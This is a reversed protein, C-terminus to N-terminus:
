SDYHLRISWEILQQTGPQQRGRGGGREGSAPTRQAGSSGRRARPEGSGMRPLTAGRARGGGLAAPGPPDPPALCSDPSLSSCRKLSTQTSLAIVEYGATPPYGHHGAAAPKHKRPRRHTAAASVNGDTSLPSGPRRGAPLLNARHLDVPDCTESGVGTEEPARQLGGAPGPGEPAGLSPHLHELDTFLAGESTSGMSCRASSLNDESASGWSHVGAPGAGGAGPAPGAGGAGPALGAGGARQRPHHHPHHHHPLHGGSPEFDAEEEEEEEEEDADEEDPDEEAAQAELLLHPPPPSPSSAYAHTPMLTQPPPPLSPPPIVSSLNVQAWRECILLRSEAPLASAGKSGRSQELLHYERAGLPPRPAPRRQLAAQLLQTTAYPVPEYTPAGGGGPGLYCLGAGDFADGPTVAGLNLDSYIANDSGLMDEQGGGGRPDLHSGYNAICDAPRSYTIMGGDGTGDANNCCNVSREKHSAGGNPWNDALWLQNLPDGMNIHGPRGASCVTEGRQYAVKRIGTYSSSLGSRKKRHRYLWVSFVMLFAWCTAGIGAIFAPQRLVHSLESLANREEFSHMVQGTSDLKFFKVDSRVGPGAGNSAAVEVSYRVGPELRPILVSFTSGDVSQNVHYRSENGLCWIKYEEVVGSRDEEPPPRWAVLITTGNADSKTVTVGQPARNPAEDLTRATRVESDPGQFEDFFPRVKFEYSVGGRLQPVVVEAEGPTRVDLFSWAGGPHGPEPSPRYLVRYGQLYATEKEVTWQLRLTSSSLTTPPNLRVVMDGLERQVQQPDVGHLSPPAEHTRVADSIPSPDSLGHANASRVLFLYVTGPRLDTLVWSPTRVHEALTVWSSGLTHSFAEVLFSAPTSGANHNTRWSLSASSHSINTVEPKSPAAPLLLPNLPPGAAVEAGFEEVELYATWTAEGSPGSAVCTYSGSDGVKTHTLQLSGSDVLSTSAELPSVPVGNRRWHITPTPTGSAECILLVKSDVPVTQNTPGRRIVPPHDSVVPDTVELQAKTIVSGAINLAQCSYLGADARQVDSITLSGSPSVSLRSSPQPPDCCFVFGEESGERQWFIAPQPSGSAQCQFTVTRGVSAVQNRPHLAFDPPVHIVLIASAESRGVMNETVCTYSGEDALRVGRIVLTHQESIEYRGSPLEADDRRWRVTPVPDGRVMCSFEASMDELVVLSSPKKLFSPRELVTLEAIESEREGVMNTGVCIYKGADSKRTNTIMLKGSRVQVLFLPLLLFLLRTVISVCKSLRIRSPFSSTPPFSKPIVPRQTHFRPAHPEPPLAPRGPTGSCSSRVRVAASSSATVKCPQCRRRHTFTHM